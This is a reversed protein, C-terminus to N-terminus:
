LASVDNFQVLSLVIPESIRELNFVEIMEQVMFQFNFEDCQGSSISSSGEDPAVHLGVV